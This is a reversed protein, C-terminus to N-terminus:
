RKIGAVRYLYSQLQRERDRLSELRGTAVRSIGESRDGLRTPRPNQHSEGRYKQGGARHSRHELGVLLHLRSVADRQISLTYRTLRNNGQTADTSRLPCDCAHLSRDLVTQACRTRYDSQEGQRHAHRGGTAAYRGISGERHQRFKGVRGLVRIQSLNWEFQNSRLLQQTTAFTKSSCFFLALLTEIDFCFFTVFLFLM